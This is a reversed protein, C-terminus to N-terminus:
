AGATIGLPLTGLISKAAADEPFQELLAQYRRAAEELDGNELYGSAVSTMESLIKDKPRAMLEPDESNAMGLLEYIMFEQKRGKVQVRRLPRAVVETAVVDFVSDSICITTGFLKNMGELRAAVNVGDGMVTYSFRRSSGVNGVLVDASNLGIRIRFIPKGEARWAENIREWRRAARLAGACAHLAHDPLVMPAGWFAMIGDGIFKDVTGKEDSIGGSVQEFYVSMQDLLADATSKEAHTSFNELDSFLITLFRREVGLALPIGSKILGRVVDMPAFSSFSLLSNRLLSVASQLQAIERVKSPRSTSHEFSLNEVSKLEGSVNEIPRSLSRSLLYILFLEFATLAVIVVVIQQNTARLSGIFDNTPTIIISEWPRGFSEPFRAFSASLEQGNRPSAFLFDDQNTQAQLRYAERVDDDAINELRAVELKGGSLRIGKEKQSAAIIKSDTPDAIITTSHASVRHTALFRSLIDLTINVTACGLFEGNRVIPVRAFLIPYGTDPNIAPETLVLSGSEKAAAYGPLARIDMTTAVDYGGVIHGWTDFFIRHRQRNEGASFDDIFSSHWNATPPIKSDSRRRDSDIRTVVRHYGDEFSVYAADIEPASTLTRYLIDRSKETRFFGPDIAAMEALLRLTGAVGHIMAETNEISAQRTKAVEQQLTETIAQSNRYYNYSLIFVLVPISLCVFLSAMITSLKPKQLPRKLRRNIWESALRALVSGITLLALGLLMPVRWTTLWNGDAQYILGDPLRTDTLMGLDHYTNAISQWRQAVQSGLDILRPQILAESQIAEYLLADHTKQTSYHSLILQVIEEKHDLAYEWGQLSAALFARVNEPRTKVREAATCLNDGYFDFGFARPSFTQYPVGLQGLIFPENTSYAVMADAKGSVLDRPDGNHQVRPLNAYDIGEHKLMAALDDSGPTDM